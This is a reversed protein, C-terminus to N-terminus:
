LATLIGTARYGGPLPRPSGAGEGVSRLMRSDPSFHRAGQRLHLTEM